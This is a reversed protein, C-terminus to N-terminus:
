WRGTWSSPVLARGQHAPLVSIPGLGYWHAAGGSIAVPSLAIDGIVSGDRVAVLSVTLQGARRLARVIVHEAHSAHPANRFAAVTVSEIAAIDQAQEPRIQISM